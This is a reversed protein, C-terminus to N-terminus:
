GRARADIPRIGYDLFQQTVNKLAAEGGPKGDAFQAYAYIVYRGRVTGAAYGGAQDIQQSRKGEMGRFWEYRKPDGARSVKLAADQRPLVAIGTTVALSKGQDIYTVRVISRCGQETLAKAMAGRAALACKHNVSSRDRLYTRGGLQLTSSPFAETLALPRTDSKEDTIDVPGPAKTAPGAPTQSAAPSPDPRAAAPKDSSGGVLFFGATALILVALLGGGVLLPVRNGRHEGNPRPAAPADDFPPPQAPRYSPAPIGTGQPPTGGKPPTGSQPPPAAAPEADIPLGGEAHYLPTIVIPATDKTSAPEPAAPDEEPAPAPVAGAPPPTTGAPLIADPLLVPQPRTADPGTPASAATADPGPTSAATVVPIGDPDTDAPSRPAAAPGAPTGPAAAPPEGTPPVATPPVARRGDVHGVGPGAVLRDTIGASRQAAPAPAAPEAPEPAEAEAEAPAPAAAPEPEGGAETESASAWWPKQLGFPPLKLAPEDKPAAPKGFSPPAAPGPAAADDM